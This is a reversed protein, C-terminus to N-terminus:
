LATSRRPVVIPVEPGQRITSFVTGCAPARMLLLLTPAVIADDIDEPRVKCAGPPTM